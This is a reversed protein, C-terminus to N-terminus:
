IHIYRRTCGHVLGDMCPQTTRLSLVRNNFLVKREGSLMYVSYVSYRGPSLYYSRCLRYLWPIIITISERRQEPSFPLLLRFLFQVHKLSKLSFHPVSLLFICYYFTELRTVRVSVVVVCFVKTLLFSNQYTTDWSM